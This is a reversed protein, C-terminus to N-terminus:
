TIIDVFLELKPAKSQEFHNVVSHLIQTDTIRISATGNKYTLLLQHPQSKIEFNTQIQQQLDPLSIKKSFTTHSIVRDIHLRVPIVESEQTSDM